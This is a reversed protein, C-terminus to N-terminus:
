SAKRELAGGMVTYMPDAASPPLKVTAGNGTKGSKALISEYLDSPVNAVTVFAWRKQPEIEQAYSTDWKIHLTHRFEPLDARWEYGPSIVEGVALIRSIGKNAIIVDGEELESLQWVENGKKKITPAHDKYEPGYQKQFESEFEQKDTFARLDGVSDWGVRIYGHERCDDWYMADEGPAIKVM